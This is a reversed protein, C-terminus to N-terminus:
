RVGDRARRYAAAASTYRQHSEHIRGISYHSEETVRGGVRLAIVREFDALARDDEDANWRHNAAAHLLTAKFPNAGSKARSELWAAAAPRGERGAIVRARLLLADDFRPSTPFKAIVRDLWEVQAAADGEAGALKAEEYMRQADQPELEPHTARLERLRQSADRSVRDGRGLHRARELARAAAAVDVAALREGVILALRAADARPAEDGAHRDLLALVAEPSQRATDVELLDGAARAALPSQPFSTLLQELHKVCEGPADQREARALFYLAVDQVPQAEAAAALDALAKAAARDDTGILAISDKLGLAVADMTITARSAAAPVFLAAAM